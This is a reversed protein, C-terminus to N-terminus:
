DGNGRVLVLAAHHAAQRHKGLERNSVLGGVEPCQARRGVAATSPGPRAAGEDEGPFGGGGCPRGGGAAGGAEAM